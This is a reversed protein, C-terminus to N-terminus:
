AGCPVAVLTWSCSWCVVQRRRRRWASADAACSPRANRLRVEKAEREWRTCCKALAADGGEGGAAGRHDARLRM